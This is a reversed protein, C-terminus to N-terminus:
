GSLACGPLTIFSINEGMRKNKIELLHQHIRPSFENLTQQPGPVPEAFGIIQMETLM